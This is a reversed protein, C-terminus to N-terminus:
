TITDTREPPAYGVQVGIRCTYEVRHLDVNVKHETFYEDVAQRAGQSHGYDDIILLGRRDLIPFLHILEHKMSGYWDTDLELSLWDNLAKPHSLKNSKGRFLTCMKKPIVQRFSIPVCMTLRAAAGIVPAWRIVTLIKTANRPSQCAKTCTFNAARIAM